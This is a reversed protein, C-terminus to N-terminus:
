ASSTSCALAIGTLLEYGASLESCEINDIRFDVKYNGDEIGWM